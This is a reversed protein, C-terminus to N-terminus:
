FDVMADSISRAGPRRSRERPKGLFEKKYKASPVSRRKLLEDFRGAIEPVINLM